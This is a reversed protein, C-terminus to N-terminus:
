AWELKPYSRMARATLFGTNAESRQGETNIEKSILSM